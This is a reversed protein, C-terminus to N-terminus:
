PYQLILTIPQSARLSRNDRQNLRRNMDDALLFIGNHCRWDGHLAGESQVAHELLYREGGLRIYKARSRRSPTPSTTAKATLWKTIKTARDALAFAYWPENAEALAKISGDSFTSERSVLKNALKQQEFRDRDGKGDKNNNSDHVDRHDPDRPSPDFGLAIFRM